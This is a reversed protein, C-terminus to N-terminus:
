LSSSEIPIRGELVTGTGATTSVTVTGALATFRDTLGALGTLQITDPDFGTGDDTVRLRLTGNSRQIRVHAATADAHKLM